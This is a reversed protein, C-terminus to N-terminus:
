LNDDSGRDTKKKKWEHCLPNNLHIFYIFNNWFLNTRQNVNAKRNM